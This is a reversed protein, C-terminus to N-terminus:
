RGPIQSCAMHARILTAQLFVPLGVMGENGVTAVEIGRGDETNSILSLVGYVPFYVTSRSIRAICSTELM